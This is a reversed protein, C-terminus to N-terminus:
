PSQMKIEKGYYPGGFARVAMHMAAATAEGVGQAILAAKLVQDCWERPRSAQQYHWDHLAGAKRAVNGFLDYVFPLRPVSCFDTVFASRVCELIVTGDDETITATLDQLLVWAGESEWDDVWLPGTFEVRM